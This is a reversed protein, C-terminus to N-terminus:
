VMVQLKGEGESKPGFVHAVALIAGVPILYAFVPGQVHNDM